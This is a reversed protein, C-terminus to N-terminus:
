CKVPLFSWPSWSFQCDCASNQLRKCLHIFSCWAQIIYLSGNDVCYVSKSVGLVKWLPYGTAALRPSLGTAQAERRRSRCHLLGPVRNMSSISFSTAFEHCSSTCTPDNVEDRFWDAFNFPFRRYKSHTQLGSQASNHESTTSRPLCKAWVHVGEVWSYTPVQCSLSPKHTQITRHAPFPLRATHEGPLQSPKHILPDQSWPTITFHPSYRKASSVLSYVEVNVQKGKFQIYILLGHLGAAWGMGLCHVTSNSSKRKFNPGFPLGQWDLSYSLQAVWLQFEPGRWDTPFRQDTRYVAVTKNDRPDSFIVIYCSVKSSCAVDHFSSSAVADHYRYQNESLVPLTCLLSNHLTHWSGILCLSLTYMVVWTPSWLFFFRCCLCSVNSIYQCYEMCYPCYEMTSVVGWLGSLVGYDQCYEMTSVVGWLGSLVGYDQCYEMTSVVGWLGSLVGYDQCYEMTRVVSWLGSLVGYLGSLVGYDQCYEMTRVVGWLASLVGYDQCYETTSVVSWLGSLVGYDQCCEM